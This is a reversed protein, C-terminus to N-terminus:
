HAGLREALSRGTPSEGTREARDDARKLGRQVYRAGLWRLPEPEWSRSRHNATPLHTIATDRGLVLDALSTPQPSV